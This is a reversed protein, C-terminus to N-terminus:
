RSGGAARRAQASREEAVVLDLASHVRAAYGLPEKPVLAHAATADGDSQELAYGAFTPATMVIAGTENASRRAAWWSRLITERTSM